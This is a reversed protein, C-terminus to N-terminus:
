HLKPSNKDTRIVKSRTKQAQIDTIEFAFPPQFNDKCYPLLDKLNDKYSQETWFSIYTSDVDNQKPLIIGSYNFNVKIPSGVISDTQEKAKAFVINYNDDIAENQKLMKLLLPHSNIQKNAHKILCGNEDGLFLYFDYQRRDYVDAVVDPSEALFKVIKYQEELLRQENM